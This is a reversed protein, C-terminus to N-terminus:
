REELRGFVVHALARADADDLDIGAIEQVRKIRYRLSNPHLSLAAASSTTDGNAVLWTRLTHVLDTGHRGDYERLRTLPNDIPLARRAELALRHLTVQAWQEDAFVVGATERGALAAADSAETYAARVQEANRITSSVGVAATPVERQALAAVRSAARHGRDDGADRPTGRVLVVL